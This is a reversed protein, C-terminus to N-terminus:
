CFRGWTDCHYGTMSQKSLKQQIAFGIFANEKRGILVDHEVFKKEGYNKKMVVDYSPFAKWIAPWKHHSDVPPRHIGRVLPWHHPGEINGQCAPSSPHSSAWKVDSHPSTKAINHREWSDRSTIMIDTFAKVYIVIRYNFTILKGPYVQHKNRAQM